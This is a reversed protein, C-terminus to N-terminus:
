LGLVFLVALLIFRIVARLYLIQIGMKPDNKSTANAKNFTMGLMLVNVVGILLGYGADLASGQIAFLGVAVLGILGQIKLPRSLSSTQM